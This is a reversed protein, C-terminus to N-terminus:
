DRAREVILEFVPQADGPSASMAKLVDNTAAQYEIREDFATKREQLEATPTVVM